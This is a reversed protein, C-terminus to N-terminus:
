LLGSVGLLVNERGLAQLKEERNVTLFESVTLYGM